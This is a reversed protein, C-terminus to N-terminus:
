CTFLAARDAVVVAKSKGPINPGSYGYTPAAKNIPPNAKTKKATSGTTQNTSVTALTRPRGGTSGKVAVASAFGGVAGVNVLSGGNPSEADTVV